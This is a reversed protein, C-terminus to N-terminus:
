KLFFGTASSLELFSLGYPLDQASSSEVALLSSWRSSRTPQASLRFSVKQLSKDKLFSPTRLRDALQCAMGLSMSQFHSYLRVWSPLKGHVSDNPPNTPCIFETAVQSSMSQSNSYLRFWSTLKRPVGLSHSSWTSRCFPGCFKKYM